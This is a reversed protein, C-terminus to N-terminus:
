AYPIYQPFDSDYITVRYKARTGEVMVNDNTGLENNNRQRTLVKLKLGTNTITYYDWCDSNPFRKRGFLPLADNLSGFIKYMVGVQQPIGQPGRTTINVPAINRGSIEVPPFVNPIGGQTGGLCGQRRGGCGIVQPPLSM